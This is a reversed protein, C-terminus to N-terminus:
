ILEFIPGDCNCELLIAPERGNVFNRKRENSPDFIDGFSIYSDINPNSPDYIWGVVAGVPTRPAGLMDRLENYFLHGQAQLKENAHNLVQKLFMMNYEPNNKEFGMCWEDFFLSYDGVTSPDVEQVTKQVVSESGDENTVTEEIEKAKINFRLENDLEKGFREIVRGRYEKFNKDIVTYAAATAVYRKRLINHGALISATSFVGMAVTPGCAKVLDVGTKVYIAALDKKAQEETYLDPHKETVYAEPNAAVKHVGDVANKAEELIENVKPSAKYAMVATAGFGIIGTVVLIEPSHKKLKLGVRNITRTMKSMIEAKSM